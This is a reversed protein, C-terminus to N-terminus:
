RRWIKEANVYWELLDQMEKQVEYPLTTKYMGIM